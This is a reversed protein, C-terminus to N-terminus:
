VEALNRAVSPNGGEAASGRFHGAFPKWGDALGSM